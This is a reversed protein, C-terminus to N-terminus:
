PTPPAPPHKMTEIINTEVVMVKEILYLMWTSALLACLVSYVLVDPRRPPEPNRLFMYSILVFNGTFILAFLLHNGSLLFVLLGAAALLFPIWERLGGFVVVIEKAINLIGALVPALAKFWEAPESMM